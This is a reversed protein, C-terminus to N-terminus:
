RKPMWRRRPRAGEAEKVIIPPDARAAGPHGMPNWLHRANNARLFNDDKM